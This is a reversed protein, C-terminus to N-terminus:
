SFGLDFSQLKKTKATSFADPGKGGNGGEGGKKRKKGEKRREGEFSQSKKANRLDLKQFCAPKLGPNERSECDHRGMISQINVFM